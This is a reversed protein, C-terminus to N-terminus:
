LVVTNIYNTIIVMIMILMIMLTKICVNALIAVYLWLATVYSYLLIAIAVFAKNGSM